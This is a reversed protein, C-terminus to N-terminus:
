GPGLRPPPAAAPNRPAGGGGEGGGGKTAGQAGGQPPLCLRDGGAGCAPRERPPRWHRVMSPSIGLEKAIQLVARGSSALLGVAERKFEDTFQRRGQGM